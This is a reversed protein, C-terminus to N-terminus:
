IKGTCIQTNYAVWWCKKDLWFSSRFSDIIRSIGEHQDRIPGFQFNLEVLRYAFDEWRSGDLLDTAYDAEIKLQKLNVLVLVLPKLFSVSVLVVIFNHM